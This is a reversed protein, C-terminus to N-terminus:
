ALLIIGVKADSPCACSERMGGSSPDDYYCRRAGETCSQLVLLSASLSDTLMSGFSVGGITGRKELAVASASATLAAVFAFIKFFQM